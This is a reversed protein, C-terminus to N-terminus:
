AEERVIDMPTMTSASWAPLFSAVMSALTASAFATIYTGIDYAVWLSNRGGIEFGFDISEIWRCMLYGLLVGLVGGGVGLVLGQYLILELIRRPGYGIARLIAIERRKQNIMITLVNYIGFAAVLLVSFIIFYRVFDQVKIMEMFMRNAEQWDEVKDKSILQWFDALETSRDIDYLAVAIQSVRGPSRTLIQVDRLQAFALSDDIQQNGFHVIGVVKFPKEVGRGASVRIYQDLRAGMKKAVGSALVIPNGGAGLDEFKGQKMYKRISTIRVHREPLTGVLGASAVFKGNSLIINAVLRPSFDFVEPDNNLREYWGSYNELRAEERKGVPPTVWAVKPGEGYLAQTVEKEDIDREAGSILIHATNNLLQEALYERMGLQVGAISVFLLTGFSVGLLILLSQRKRSLLQRWSLYFM